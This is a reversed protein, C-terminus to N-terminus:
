TKEKANEEESARIADGLRTDRPHRNVDRLLAALERDMQEVESRFASASLRLAGQGLVILQELGDSTVVRVPHERAIEHTTKEIYADATEAERTYVM